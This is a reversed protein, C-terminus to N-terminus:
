KYNKLDMEIWVGDVLWELRGWQPKGKTRGIIRVPNIWDAQCDKQPDPISVWDQHEIGYDLAMAEADDLEEFHCDWTCSSDAISSYGFLFVGKGETDYIMLRVANSHPTKVNAIKRM